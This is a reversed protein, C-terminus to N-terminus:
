QCLLIPVQCARILETSLSGFILSKLRSGGFAGMAVLDVGESVVHQPVVVRAIGDVIEANSEYGSSTLLAAARDLEAWTVPCAMLPNAAQEPM